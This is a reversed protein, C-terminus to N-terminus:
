RLGEKLEVKHPFRWSLMESAILCTKESEGVTLVDPM